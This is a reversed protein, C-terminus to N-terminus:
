SAAEEITTSSLMLGRSINKFLKPFPPFKSFYPEVNRVLSWYRYINKRQTVDEKILADFLRLHTILEFETFM